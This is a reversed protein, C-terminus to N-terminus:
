KKKKSKGKKKATKQKVKSSPNRRKYLRWATQIITAARIMANLKREEEEAKERAIRKEEVVHSYEIELM